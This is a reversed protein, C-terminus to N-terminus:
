KLYSKLPTAPNKGRTKGTVPPQNLIDTNGKPAGLGPSRQQHLPSQLAGWDGGVRTFGSILRFEPINWGSDWNIPIRDRYHQRFSLIM